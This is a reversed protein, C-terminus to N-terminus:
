AEPVLHESQKGGAETVVVWKYNRLTAKLTLTQVAHDPFERLREADITVRVDPIVDRTASLAHVYAGSQALLKEITVSANDYAREGLRIISGRDPYVRQVTADSSLTPGLSARLQRGARRWAAETSGEEMCTRLFEEAIPLLPAALQMAGREGTLARYLALRDGEMSAQSIEGAIAAALIGALANALSEIARSSLTFASQVPPPKSAVPELPAFRLTVVAETLVGNPVPFFRLIEDKQYKPALRKSYENSEDQAYTLDTLFAAIIHSLQDDMTM